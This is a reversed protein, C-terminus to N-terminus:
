RREISRLLILGGLIVLFIPWLSGWHIPPMAIGLTRDLLYYVGIALIVLGVVLAGINPRRERRAQDRPPFWPPERWDTSPPRDPTPPSAQAAEATPTPGPENPETM